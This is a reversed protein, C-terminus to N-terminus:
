KKNRGYKSDERIWELMWRNASPTDSEYELGRSRGKYFRELVTHAVQLIRSCWDLDKLDYARRVWQQMLSSDMKQPLLVEGKEQIFYEHDHNWSTKGANLIMGQSSNM